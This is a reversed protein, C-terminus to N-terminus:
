KDKEMLWHFVTHCNNCLVECKEIEKLMAEDSRTMSRSIKFEKEKPNRHHFVLGAPHNNYGCFVCGKEVKLRDIWQRRQRPVNTTDKKKKRMAGTM